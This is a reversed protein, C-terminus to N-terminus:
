GAMFFKGSRMKSIALKSAAQEGATVTVGGAGGVFVVSGVLVFVGVAVMMGLGVRVLVRVGAGIDAFILPM